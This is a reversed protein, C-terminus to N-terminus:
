SITALWLLLQTPSCETDVGIFYEQIDRVTIGHHHITNLAIHPSVTVIPMLTQHIVETNINGHYKRLLLQWGALDIATDERCWKTMEVVDSFPIHFSDILWEACRNKRRNFLKFLLSNNKANIHTYQLHFQQIVWKVSKSSYPQFKGSTLCRAVFETTPLPLSSAPTFVLLRKLTDLGVTMFKIVLKKFLPPYCQPHFETFTDLLLALALRDSFQLAAAFAGQISSEKIIGLESLHQIFWKLGEVGRYDNCVGVLTTGAIEASSNVVDMVHFRDALFDAVEINGSRLAATLSTIIDAQSLTVRTSLWRALSSGRKRPAACASVFTAADPIAFHKESVLWETLSVNGLSECLKNLTDARADINFTTLVWKIAEISKMFGAPGDENGCFNSVVWKCDEVSSWKNKLIYDSYDDLTATLAPFKKVWWRISSPSPSQACLSALESVVFDPLGTFDYEGFLWEVVEVKGGHVASPLQQYLIWPASNREIGLVSVLWRLVAVHNEGGVWWMFNLPGCSGRVYEIVKERLKIRGAAADGGGLCWAANKWRVVCRGDWLSPLACEIALQAGGSSRANGDTCCGQSVGDGILKRAEEVHGGCCLGLLVAAVEKVVVGDGCEGMCGGGGCDMGGMMVGGEQDEAEAQSYSKGGVRARPTTNKKEGENRHGVIWAVGAPSPASAAAALSRYTGATRGGERTVLRLARRCLLGRLPFLAEAAAWLGRHPRCLHRAPGLARREGLGGDLWGPSAVHDWVLRSIWVARALACPRCPCCPTTTPCVSPHHHLLSTTVSREAEGSHRHMMYTVCSGSVPLLSVVEAVKSVLSMVKGGTEPDYFHHMSRGNSTTSRHDSVVEKCVVFESFATAFAGRGHYSFKFMPKSPATINYVHARRKTSVWICFTDDSLRSFDGRPLYFVSVSSDKSRVDLKGSEPWYVVIFPDGEQSWCISDELTSCSVLETVEASEMPFSISTVSRVEKASVSAELDVFLLTVGETERLNSSPLQGGNHLLLVLTDPGRMKMALFCPCRLRVHASLEMAGGSGAAVRFVELSDSAVMGAAIWKRNCCVSLKGWFVGGIHLAELPLDNIMRPAAAMDSVRLGVRRLAGVVWPGHQVVRSGSEVRKIPEANSRWAGSDEWMEDWVSDDVDDVADVDVDGDCENGGGCENSRIGAGIDGVLGVVHRWEDGEANWVHGTVVGGTHSVYCLVMYSVSGSGGGGVCLRGTAMFSVVARPAMVWRSGIFHSIVQTPLLHAPSRSGCRPHWHLGIGAVFQSKASLVPELSVQGDSSVCRGYTNDCDNKRGQFQSQDGMVCDSRDGM